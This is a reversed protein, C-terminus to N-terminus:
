VGFGEGTEKLQCLYKNIMDNENKMNEDDTTRSKHLRKDNERKQQLPRGGLENKLIAGRSEGEGGGRRGEEGPGWWKGLKGSTNNTTYM